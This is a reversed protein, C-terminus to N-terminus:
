PLPNSPNHFDAGDQLRTPIARTRPPLSGTQQRSDNNNRRQSQSQPTSTGRNHIVRSLPSMRLLPSKLQNKTKQKSTGATLNKQPATASTKSPPRGRRKKTQGLVLDRESEGVTNTITTEATPNQPRPPLSAQPIPLLNEPRESARPILKSPDNFLRDVTADTLGNAETELVRQRRTASESPNGCNIYRIDVERLDQRIEEETQYRPPHHHPSTMKTWTADLPPKLANTCQLTTRRQKQNARARGEGDGRNRYDGRRERRYPPSTNPIRHSNHTPSKRPDRFIHSRPPTHTRSPKVPSLRDRSINNYNPRSRSIHNNDQNTFFPLKLHNPITNPDSRTTQHLRRAQPNTPCDEEEHTLKHCYLCHKNLKHYELTVLAEKGGEFEVIAEKTIPELGNVEVRIKAATSTIEYSKLYGVADGISYLLERGITSHYAGSPSGSPSQQRFLHRSLKKLDEVYDFRFQFCGNGLDSGTANGRLEWKNSFYPLM